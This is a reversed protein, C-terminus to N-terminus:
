SVVLTADRLTCYMQGSEEYTDFVGTVTIDAWDEPYDDPYTYDGARVFEMGQQCCAAADAIFVAFYDLGNIPDVTHAFNGKARVTKGVYDEPYNVMEFVQAYVMNSDMGTLDIDIDGNQFDTDELKATEPVPTDEREAWYEAAIDTGTVAPKETTKSDDILKDVKSTNACGSLLVLSLAAAIVSASRNKM